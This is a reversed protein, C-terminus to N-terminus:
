GGSGIPVRRWKEHEGAGVSGAVRWSRIRHDHGMVLFFMGSILAGLILYPMAYLMGCSVHITLRGPSNM